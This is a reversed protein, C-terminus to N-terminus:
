PDVQQLAVNSALAGLARSKRSKVTGLPIGLTQASEADTLSLYFRCVIVERQEIPLGLLAQIV